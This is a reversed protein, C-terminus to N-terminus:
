RGLSIELEALEQQSELLEENLSQVTKRLKAEKKELLALGELKVKQEQM